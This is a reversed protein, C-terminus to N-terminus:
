APLARAEPKRAYRPRMVKLAVLRQLSPDEARFVLGMGGAGLLELVRYRGLRGLEGASQAPALLALGEVEATGGVLEGSTFSGQTNLQELREVLERVGPALGGEQDGGAASQEKLTRTLLSDVQLKDLVQQCRTCGELHAELADARDEPAHGLLIQKIQQPTLCDDRAPM